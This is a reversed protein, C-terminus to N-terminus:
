CGSSHLLACPRDAAKFVNSAGGGGQSRCAHERCALCGRRSPCATNGSPGLPLRCDALCLLQQEPILLDPTFVHRRRWSERLSVM